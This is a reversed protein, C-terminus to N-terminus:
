CSKYPREESRGEEKEVSLPKNRIPNSSTQRDPSFQTLRALGLRPKTISRSSPIDHPRFIPNTAPRSDLEDMSGIDACIVRGEAGICPGHVVTHMSIPDMSPIDAFFASSITWPGTIQVSPQEIQVSVPDMSSEPAVAQVSIPDMSSKPSHVCASVPNLSSRLTLTQILVPDVSSQSSKASPRSRSAYCPRFSFAIQQKLPPHTIVM